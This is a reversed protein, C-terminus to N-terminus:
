YESTYHQWLDDVFQKNSYILSLVNSVFDKRSFNKLRDAHSSRCLTFLFAICVRDVDVNAPNALSSTATTAPVVSTSSRMVVAKRQIGRLHHPHKANRDVPAPPSRPAASPSGVRMPAPVDWSKEIEEREKPKDKKGKKQKKGKCRKEFANPDSSASTDAFDLEIVDSDTEVLPPRPYPWLDSDTEFPVLLFVRPPQHRHPCKTSTVDDSSPISGHTPSHTPSSTDNVSPPPAASKMTPVQLHAGSIHPSQARQQRQGINAAATLINAM